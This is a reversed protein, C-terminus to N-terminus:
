TKALQGALRRCEAQVYTLRKYTSYGDLQWHSEPREAAYKADQPSHDGHHGCDFGLWWVVDSEGAGPVHCIGKSEDPHPQCRDTFTVGGHVELDHVPGDHKGFLPHGIPVGVYGCWNGFHGHRVALCPLGTAADPWQVKDPEGDWAGSPWGLAERDITTYQKSEM